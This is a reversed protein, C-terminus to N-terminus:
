HMCLIKYGTVYQSSCLYKFFSILKGYEGDWLVSNCQLNFLSNDM